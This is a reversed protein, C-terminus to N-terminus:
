KARKLTTKNKMSGISTMTLEDNATKLDYPIVYGNADKILLQNNNVKWEGNTKNDIEGGPTRIKGELRFKGDQDFEYKSSGDASKWTGVLKEDVSGEFSVSKPESTLIEEEAPQCGFVLALLIPAVVFKKM